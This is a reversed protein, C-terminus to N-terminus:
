ICNELTSLPCMRRAATRKEKSSNAPYYPGAKVQPAEEGMGALIEAVLASLEEKNM